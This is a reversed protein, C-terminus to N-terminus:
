SNSVLELYCFGAIGEVRIIKNNYMEQFIVSLKCNKASLMLSNCYPLDRAPPITGLLRGIPRYRQISKIM